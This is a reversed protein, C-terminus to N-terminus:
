RTRRSRAAALITAVGVGLMAFSAPEPVASAAPGFQTVFMRPGADSSFSGLSNLDKDLFIPTQTRSGVLLRGDAGLFLDDAYTFTKAGLLAGTAYDIKMVQFYHSSDSLMSAYLVGTSADYELGRLDVFRYPNAGNEAQTLDRVVHGSGDLEYIDYASAVLMHGNALTKVDFVGYNSTPFVLNGSGPSGETFELLGGGAGVFFHGSSDFSIKGYSINNMNSGPGDYTYSEKLAGTSDFALVGVQNVLNFNADQHLQDQVVYLLGDPGFGLGRTSGYISTAPMAISGLYAGTSDYRAVANEDHLENYTAYIDGITFGARTDASAVCCCAAAVACILFRKM